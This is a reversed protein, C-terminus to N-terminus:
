VATTKAVARSYSRRETAGDVHMRDIEPGEVRCGSRGAAKVAAYQGVVM